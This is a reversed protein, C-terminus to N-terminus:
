SKALAELHGLVVREAGARTYLDGNRTFLGDAIVRAVDDVDQAGPLSRSDPGGGLSNNGFDTKVVGPLVTIVRIRPFTEKLEIRLTEGLSNVAAKCASYAARIPAFPVRGLMSSVNAITGEGRAQLHPLVAQMGYLVSKVNDRVM